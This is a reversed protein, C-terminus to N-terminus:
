NLEPKENAYYDDGILLKRGLRAVVVVICYCGTADASTPWGCWSLLAM